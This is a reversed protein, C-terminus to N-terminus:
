IDDMNIESIDVMDNTDMFTFSSGSQDELTDQLMSSPREFLDPIECYTILKSVEDKDYKHLVDVKDVQFSRCSVLVVDDVNFWVKKKRFRGPIIGLLTRGDVLRVEIKRDGLLRMVKGYEENDQKFEIDRCKSVTSTSNKKINKNSKKPPM